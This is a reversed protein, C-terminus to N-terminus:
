AAAVDAAAVPPAPPTKAGPAELAAGTAEVWVVRTVTVPVGDVGDLVVAAADLGAAVVGAAPVPAEPAAGM